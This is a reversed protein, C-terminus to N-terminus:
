KWSVPDLCMKNCVSQKLNKQKLLFFTEKKTEKTHAHQHQKQIHLRDYQRLQSYKRSRQQQAWTRTKLWIGGLGVGWDALAFMANTIPKSM